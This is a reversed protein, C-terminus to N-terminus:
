HRYSLKYLPIVQETEYLRDWTYLLKTLMESKHPM